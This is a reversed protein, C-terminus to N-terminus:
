FSPDSSSDQVYVIARADTELVVAAKPEEKADHMHLWSQGTPVCHDHGPMCVAPHHGVIATLSTGGM